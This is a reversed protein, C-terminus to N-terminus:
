KQVLDRLKWGIQLCPEETNELRPLYPAHAALGRSSDVHPEDAGGVAVQSRHSVLPAKTGIQVISDVAQDDLNRWQAGAEVVHPRERPVHKTLHLRFDPLPAEGGVGQITKSAMGPGAVNSLEPVDELQSCEIALTFRDANGWDFACQAANGIRGNKSRARIGQSLRELL